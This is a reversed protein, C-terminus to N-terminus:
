GGFIQLNNGWAVGAGPVGGTPNTRTVAGTIKTEFWATASTSQWSATNDKVTFNVIGGVATFTFGWVSGAFDFAQTSGPQSVENGAFTLDYVTGSISASILDKAFASISGNVLTFKNDKISILSIAVLVPSGISIIDFFRAQNANDNWTTSVHNDSIDIVLTNQREIDVLQVVDVGGRAGVRNAHVVIREILGTSDTTRDPSDVSLLTIGYRPNGSSSSMMRSCDNRECLIQRAINADVEFVRARTTLDGTYSIGHQIEYVVNDSFDVIDFVASADGMVRIVGFDNSNAQSVGRLTCRNVRLEQITHALVDCTNPAVGDYTCDLFRLSRIADGSIGIAHGKKFTCTQFLLNDISGNVIVKAGFKCDRFVVQGVATTASVSVAFRAVPTDMREVLLNGMNGFNLGDVATGNVYIGSIRRNRIESATTNDTSSVKVVAPRALSAFPSGLELSTTDLLVIDSRGDAIEIVGAEADLYEHTIRSTRINRAVGTIRLAAGNLTHSGLNTLLYMQDIDVYSVDTGQIASGAYVSATCEFKCERLEFRAGSDIQVGNEAFKVHLRRLCLQGSTVHLAESAAFTLQAYDEHEYYDGVIEVRAHGVTVLAGNFGALQVGRKIVITGGAAPLAAIAATLMLNANAYDATNFDGFISSGDGITVYGPLGRYAADVGGAPLNYAGYNNTPGPTLFSSGKWAVEGLQYALVQVMDHLTRISGNRYPTTPINSPDPAVAASLRNTIATGNPATVANYGTCTIAGGTNTVVGILVLPTTRGNVNDEAVIASGNSRLFVNYSGQFTTDIARTTESFPPAPPLFRRKANDGSTEQYYVYIQFTGSPITVDVTIGAPKIIMAGDADLAVGAETNIRVKNDSPGIPNLTLTFGSVILGVPTAATARPTSLLARNAATDNERPARSAADADVTDFRENAQYRPRKANNITGSM